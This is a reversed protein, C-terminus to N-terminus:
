FLVCFLSISLINSTNGEDEERNEPDNFVDDEDVFLSFCCQYNRFNSHPEPKGFADFRELLNM